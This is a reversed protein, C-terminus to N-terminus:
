PEISRYRSAALSEMGKHILGGTVVLAAAVAAYLPWGTLVRPYLARVGFYLAGLYVVSLLGAILTNFNGKMAQQPNTWRLKPSVLDNILCIASVPWSVLLAFAASIILTTADPRLVFGVSAMLIALQVVSFGMSYLFKGRAQVQPSVPLTKSLFFLSGERSLGTSAVQNLSVTLGHVGAIGLILLEPPVMNRVQELLMAIDGKGAGFSSILMMLPVITLNTLTVLLWTSNRAMTRHEKTVLAMLVSSGGISIAKASQEAGKKAPAARRVDRSVGGLFWRQSVSTVFFLVAISVGAFLATNGLGALPTESTLAFAAWKLPPYYGAVSQILGNRQMLAQVLAQPDRVMSMNLYQFAIVLVFFVLGFVIRFTDRRKSRSTLRMLPVIAFLALATPICPTTLLVIPAFAWYTPSGLRLGLAIMSPLAVAAAVALQPLYASLVKAWMIQRATFPMSQLTELDDSDYLISMLGSIGVFMVLGQAATITLIVQLGPQGAGIATQALTDFMNYVVAFMSVLAMGLAALYLYATKPNKGLGLKDSMGRIGFESKIQLRILSSLPSRGRGLLLKESRASM